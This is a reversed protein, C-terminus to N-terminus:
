EDTPNRSSEYLLGDYIKAIEATMRGLSFREQVRARGAVGMTRRLHPDLLLIRFRDALAFPDNPPVLWGTKGEEVIEPLGGCRTAVVPLCAAMAELAAIPLGEDMSPLSFVNWGAMVPALPEQWGLFTVRDTLGQAHVLAELRRQDPGEGAIELHLTPFESRLVDLASILHHVAKIPALRGAMGVVMRGDFSPRGAAQTHEIEEIPIGPYVVRASRGVVDAAVSRSVAIVCDAGLSSLPKRAGMSEVSSAHLHLITKAGGRARTVLSMSRGGFHMHVLAFKESHLARWFRFAGAPDWKGGRWPVFRVRVGRAALEASLPGDDLLFWAHMQYRDPDLRGALGAVMRVVAAGERKATSLIHLIHHAMMM